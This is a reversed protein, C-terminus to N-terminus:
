GDTRYMRRQQEYSLRVPDAGDVSLEMYSGYDVGTIGGGFVNRGSKRLHAIAGNDDYAIFNNSSTKLIRRLGVAKQFRYVAGNAFSISTTGEGKTLNVADEYAYWEDVWKPVTANLTYDAYTYYSDGLWFELSDDRAEPTYGHVLSVPVAADRSIVRYNVAIDYDKGNVLKPAVYDGDWPYDFEAVNVQFYHPTSSNYYFNYVGPTQITVKFFAVGSTYSYKVLPQTVEYGPVTWVTDVTPIRTSTFGISIYAVLPVVTGNANTIAFFDLPPKDYVAGSHPYSFPGGSGDSSSEIGKDWVASNDCYIPSFRYLTGAM